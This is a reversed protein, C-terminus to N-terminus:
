RRSKLNLVCRFGTKPNRDNMRQGRRVWVEWDAGGGKVVREGTNTPHRPGTWNERRSFDLQSLEQFATEGYFDQLWERANGAMDMVGFVSRDDPHYGVPDIQDIRRPVRWLPRSEGWPRPFGNFGRAAKEWQVETPLERHSAQVYARAEGWTVGLAPQEPRGEANVPQEIGDGSKLAKRRFAAFQGVTVEHVSIYFSSVNVQVQPGVHPPGSNWGVFSRGGPVLAMQSGDAQCLIRSPLGDIFPETEIARFGGPLSVSRKPADQSGQSEATQTNITFRSEDRGRSTIRFRDTVEGPPAIGVTVFNSPPVDAVAFLEDPDVGSLDLGKPEERPKARPAFGLPKAEAAPLPVAAPAAPPPDGGCGVASATVLLLCHILWESLVCGSLHHTGASNPQASSQNM